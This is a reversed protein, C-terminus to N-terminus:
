NFILCPSHEPLYAITKAYLHENTNIKIALSRKVKIRRSNNAVITSFKETKWTAITIAVVVVIVIVIFFLLLLQMIITNLLWVYQIFLVIYTFYLIICYKNKMKMENMANRKLKM